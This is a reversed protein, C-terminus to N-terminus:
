EQKEAKRDRHEFTFVMIRNSGELVTEESENRLQFRYEVSGKEPPGTRRRSIV